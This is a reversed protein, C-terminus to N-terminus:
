TITAIAAVSKATLPETELTIRPEPMLEPWSVATRHAPASIPSANIAAAVRGLDSLIRVPSRGSSIASPM